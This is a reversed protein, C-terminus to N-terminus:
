AAAVDAFRHFMAALRADDQSDGQPRAQRGEFQDLAMALTAVFRGNLDYHRHNHVFQFSKIYYALHWKSVGRHKNLWWKSLGARCECNNSHIENHDGAAYEGEGHNVAHHDYGMEGLSKYANHEDSMVTSGPKIRERVMGALTTGGRPVDMITIDPEDGSARQHYLTAMPKDKEFTSRGPRHPLGRRSPVTRDGGNEKLPVGKSGAKVYCEDTECTGELQGEPLNRIKDMIRRMMYYTTKYAHGTAQSIYRISIGNLPGGLFMWLALMWNGIGIHRYHLITGTKDNFTKCCDKCTYRQLNKQYRCYKVVNNEGCKPCFVRDNWRVIRFLEAAAAGDAFMAFLALLPGRVTSTRKRTKAGAM